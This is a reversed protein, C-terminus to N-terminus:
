WASAVIARIVASWRNRCKSRDPKTTIFFGAADGSRAGRYSTTRRGQRVACCVCMLSREAPPLEGRRVVGIGPAVSWACVDSSPQRPWIITPSTM